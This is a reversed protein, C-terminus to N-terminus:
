PARSGFTVQISTLLPLFWQPFLGVIFMLCVGIIILGNSFLGARDVDDESASIEEPGMVLVALSRLGGIMFGASGLIVGLSVWVEFNTLQEWIILYIPFGALIPIGVLSFHALILGAGVIPFRRGLGQVARFRLDESYEKLIALSLAWVGIAIIRSFFLAFLLQTGEALSIALFTRGTEFIMAFGLMRGLNRQFAGWAGGVLIMLIGLFRFIELLNIYEYLSPYRQIFGVPFLIGVSLLTTIVFSTVYPHATETLMPIWSHLPFIGLHFAFGFGLFIGARVIDQTNGAEIEIGSLFWGALLIFPVGLTQYTLFRLAGRNVSEGVPTLMLVSLLVAVEILLAAYLIPQVSLAAILVAVSAMGLPVFLPPTTIVLAGIFWFSLTLYSMAIQPLNPNSIVFSRGAITLQEQIKFALPGFTIVEGVNLGWALGSLILATVIAIILSLTQRRYLFVLVLSVIGPVVIWIIPSSM